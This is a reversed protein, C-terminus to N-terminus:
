ESSYEAYLKEEILDSGLKLNLKKKVLARQDNTFYVSRALQIFTDDFIKKAEQKRIKDEIDWLSENKVRLEQMEATIDIGTYPSRQWTELLIQLEKKINELKAPVTIRESKIQLITLKDLFEGVSIQVQISM